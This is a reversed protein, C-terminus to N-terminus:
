VADADRRGWVFLVMLGILDPAICRGYRSLETIVKRWLYSSTPNGHLLVVPDGRGHEVYAMPVGLVRATKKKEPDFKRLM